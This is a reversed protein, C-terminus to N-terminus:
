SDKRGRVAWGVPANWVRREASEKNRRVLEEELRALNEERGAIEETRRVLEDEEEVEALGALKQSRAESALSLAHVHDASKQTAKLDEGSLDADEINEADCQAHAPNFVMTAKLVDLAKSRRDRNSALMKEIVSVYFRQQMSSVFWKEIETIMHSYYLPGQNRNPGANDELTKGGNLLYGHFSSVTRESLVTLMDCFVCGLAFIDSARGHRERSGSFKAMLEPAAYMYSTRAPNETSTTHGVEFASSSSFDTFYIDEGKQIINSPKIDQHRIGSEHMYALASALCAFWKSIWGKWRLGDLTTPEEDGAFDLFRKLDSDGVPSMLLFYFHANAHKKEEYTGLLAVIHPHVLLRLNKAEEQIIELTANAERKRAPLQVRKRVFTPLQTNLRRVEEVIGLSGHGLFRCITVPDEDQSTVTIHELDWGFTTPQRELEFRCSEKQRMSLGAEEDQAILGQETNTNSRTARYQDLTGHDNRVDANVTTQHKIAGDIRETEALPNAGLVVSGYQTSFEQRPSPQSSGNSMMDFASSAEVTSAEPDMDEDSVFIPRRTPSGQVTDSSGGIKWFSGLDEHDAPRQISLEPQGRNPSGSLSPSNPLRSDRHLRVNLDTGAQKANFHSSQQEDIPLFGTLASGPQTNTDQLTPPLSLSRLVPEPIVAPIPKASETDAIPRLGDQSSLSSGGASRQDSLRYKKPDLIDSMTRRNRARSHDVQFSPPAEPSQLPRDRKSFDAYSARANAPGAAENAESLQQSQRIPEPETEFVVGYRNERGYNYPSAKPQYPSAKPESDLITDPKLGFLRSLPRPLSFVSKRKEKGKGNQTRGLKTPSRPRDNRTPHDDASPTVRDNATGVPYATEAALVAM